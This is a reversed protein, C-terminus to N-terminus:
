RDAAAAGILEQLPDNDADAQGLLIRNEDISEVDRLKRQIARTRTEATDITSQAENLKKKVKALVDAYKGFETKVAGLLEWVESSRKQIALTRFGMQFSNLLAALTSPGTLVVRYERQIFEILGPRRMAEAYLGETSLFLIGFDTTCPPLIYKHSITKACNKLTCELQRIAKDIAESDGRESADVLRQYDEVPFKADIPLWVPSGASGDRGPLKIAFEVREGTGTTAVNQSYQDSALIQELLAGLQVEGWTGRTKVNTLVRKLDGVGAALSQMEGLGKYVQELRDSVQKFSEGLRTELTGQLKEDVTLRMQELKRENETQITSLRADITSRIEALEKKQLQMMEGITKVVTDGLNKLSVGTEERLHRTNERLTTQVAELQQATGHTLETIRGNLLCQLNLHKEDLGAQFGAFATSITQSQERQLAQTDRLACDLSTRFELLQGTVDTQFRTTTATLAKAIDDLRRSSDASFGGLRQELGTRVSELRRDNSLTLNEVKGTISEGVTSLCSLVEGRLSQAHGSAEQRNRALEERFLRDLQTQAERLANIGALTSILDPANAANSIRRNLFITLVALFLLIGLALCEIIQFTNM